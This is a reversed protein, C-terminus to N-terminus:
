RLRRKLLYVVRESSPLAVMQVIEFHKTFASEFGQLSYDPFVDKRNALLRHVQPDSKPVFEIALWATLEHFYHALRTLPVNNSIALHHVLALAWAFDVPGRENLSMRENNAWGLGPSPNTLDLVLPLLYRENHGKGILYSQEVAGFDKDFAVTFIGRESAIRSFIGTNAGLDWVVDPQVRGLFSGLLEKKKQTLVESYSSQDYYDAWETKGPDWKLNAISAYLSQILGLLQTRNMTRQNQENVVRKGAYRKQAKAHMHLNLILSFNLLSRVPLLKSALDLPVGDVYTRLLNSLRIDTYAMLALPALFHQCFQRYATWPVGEVYPEFSLTDIFIAKSGV